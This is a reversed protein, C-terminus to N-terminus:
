AASPWGSARSAARRGTTSSTSCGPSTRTGGRRCATSGACTEDSRHSDSDNFPPNALVDDAKLDKHLDRRFTDAHEPGLDGEIGRIALNMMALRRTTSNSEQGYVAIDGIRGGHEEVFKESQVFMGASGCCPDHVRSKTSEGRTRALMEVLARVVCRPTDFQGGNMGKANFVRGRNLPGRFVLLLVM